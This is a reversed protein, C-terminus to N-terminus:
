PDSRQSAKDPADSIAAPVRAFGLDQSRKTETHGPNQRLFNRIEAARTNSDELALLLILAEGVTVTFATSAADRKQGGM